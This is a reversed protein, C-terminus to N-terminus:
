RPDGAEIADARQYLWSDSAMGLTRREHVWVREMEAAAERLAEAQGRRVEAEVVPALADLFIEAQRDFDGMDEGGCEDDPCADAHLANAADHLAERAREQWGSM